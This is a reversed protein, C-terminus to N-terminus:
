NTENQEREKINLAATMGDNIASIIQYYKKPIVDGIAYINPFTTELNEDVCIYGNSTKINKIFNINPTGGIAVFIGEINLTINNKLKVTSVVSNSSIIETIENPKLIKINPTKNVKAVLQENAKIKNRIIIYIKKCINSLYLADTFATDGGGVVAVTKNKYFAGDCVACYSIGKIGETNIKLKNPTKGTAIIIYKTELEKNKGKVIYKNNQKQIEIVEEFEVKINLSKIHNLMEIALEPGTINPLGLYNNIINTKLLEGGPANKDLIIVNLGARKLYLSAALGAPGAGIVICDFNLKM